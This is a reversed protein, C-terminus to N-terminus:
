FTRISTRTSVFDGTSVSAAGTVDTVINLVKEVETSDSNSIYIIDKDAMKLRQLAFYTAPDRLNARIVVPVTSGFKSVDISNLNGLDIQMRQLVSADMQRYLFVQAPDARADLLGGAKAVGEALSLNSEEFDIRGSLGTAGFALFTRRERNVYITDGAAVFVNESSDNILDSFLITGERGRRQLTVYTEVGPTSLGGALAIADLVRQGSANIPIQAPRQVDGLVSVQNSRNEVLTVLVQPEIARNALLTEVQRQVEETSRGVAQIRGAYPVSITGSRDITQSPLTIYNGPRSGADAPIFLGGASSEFVSVQVIDGIGLITGPPGGRGTGFGAKLTSPTATEFFPLMSQTLDLLVYDIGVRRQKDGVRIAAENQIRRDDPGARPLTACASLGFSLALGSVLVARHNQRMGRVEHRM